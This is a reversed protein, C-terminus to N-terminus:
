LQIEGWQISVKRCYYKYMSKVNQKM